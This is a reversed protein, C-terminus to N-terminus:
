DEKQSDVLPMEELVSTAVSKASEVEIHRVFFYAVFCGITIPPTIVFFFLGVSDSLKVGSIIASAIAGAGLSAIALLMEAWPFKSDKLAGLKSRWGAILSARVSVLYDNEDKASNVLKYSHQVTVDGDEAVAKIDATPMSQVSNFEEPNIM